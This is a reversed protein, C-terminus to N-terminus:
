RTFLQSLSNGNAQLPPPIGLADCISPAVDTLSAPDRVVHGSRAGAGSFLCLAPM